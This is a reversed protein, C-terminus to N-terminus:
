LSRQTTNQRAAAVVDRTLQLQKAADAAQQEFQHKSLSLQDAQQANNAKIQERTLQLADKTLNAQWLSAAAALLAAGVSVLTIITRGSWKRRYGRHPEIIIPSDSEVELDAKGRNPSFLLM